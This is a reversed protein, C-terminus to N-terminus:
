NNYALNGGVLDPVLDPNGLARDLKTKLVEPSLSYVVKRPLRNCCMVVIETFFKGRVVM